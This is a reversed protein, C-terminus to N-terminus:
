CCFLLIVINSAPFLVTARKRRVHSSILCLIMSEITGTSQDAAKFVEVLASALQKGKSCGFEDLAAAVLYPPSLLAQLPRETLDSVIHLLNVPQEGSPSPVRILQEVAPHLYATNTRRLLHRLQNDVCLRHQYFSKWSGLQRRQQELWLSSAGNTTSDVSKCCLVGWLTDDAALRAFHSSVLMMNVLDRLSLMSFIHLVLEETEWLLHMM